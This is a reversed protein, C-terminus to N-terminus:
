FGVRVNVLDYEAFDFPVADGQTGLQQQLSGLADTLEAATPDRPCRLEARGAFGGVELMRATVAPAEGPEPRLSTLLLNPSDLHFLWGAPGVHPPGKTVPLVVVPSAFGWATQMPHERDLGLALEFAHASEGPAVLIVDLMRTGHRQHFPLGGPLILTREGGSRLELYDPTVPRPHTTVSGQGQVGRLLTAREDRWAFRAGYYAHWPYGQPAHEPFLEVRLELLPRSLWARFRQRFTALVNQHEDVLAGTSVVEGLAPGTSTVTVEKAVMSSGPQFVLQQGLRNARTRPDRIARLGGTAPDIEAEFFENRVGREDALKVARRAPPTLGGTSSGPPQRGGSPVWAFGLAPVEVVLRATGGDLQAAKVPGGLPPLAAFDDRELAVRRAFACPNLLLLGPRDAAARSLLREALPGAARREAAEVKELPVDEFREVHAELAGVQEELGDDPSGGLARHLAACTRAADLRRRLRLHRAFGSVPRPAGATVRQDLADIAFDDASDPAAYEGVMGEGLYRSLTTWTGLVPALESLALWDDYWPAAASGPRHLLGLTAAQDNMITQHLYHALHFYTQPDDAAVPTRTYAEVQRGDPSSWQIVASKHSPLRADGFSLFLARSLGVQHLLLPTLPHFSGRPSAFVRVDAGLLDRTVALGRRLNWLQSEIPLLEEERDLYEGGCVELTPEEPSGPADAGPSVFRGRLEALRGPQERALAELAQGPAILNLPSRRGFATPLPAGLHNADLLAFDLLHLTVPYLVDRASLLKQAAAELNRIESQPNRIQEQIDAWFGDKDLLHEHEMADFLTEVTLYGLGLGFLPRLADEGWEFASLDAGLAALAERLNAQTSERDPTARFAAAGASRVREDWDDPLYLPPSEPIAYLHGEVPTEYDYPSTYRPPGAAGALAAPHWLASWAHLWCATDDAGLMLQHHTPPTYPSLLILERPM